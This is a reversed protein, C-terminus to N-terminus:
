KLKVTPLGLIYFSTTFKANKWWPKADGLHGYKFNKDGAQSQLPNIITGSGDVVPQIAGNLQSPVVVTIHGNGTFNQAIIIGCSVKNNSYNRDLQTQLADVDTQGIWNFNGGYDAFWDYLDNAQMEKVTDGYIVKLVNGVKIKNISDDTWWVRPIYQGLLFVVDYAYINCFTEGGKKSYRLHTVDAVDLYDLIDKLNQNVPIDDEGLPFAQHDSNSRTSDTNGTKLNVAPIDADKVQLKNKGM